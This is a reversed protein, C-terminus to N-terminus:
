EPNAIRRGEARSAQRSSVEEVTDVFPGIVTREFHEGMTFKEISRDM